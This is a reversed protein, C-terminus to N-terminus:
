YVPLEADGGMIAQPISTNQRKASYDSRKKFEMTAQLVQQAKDYHRTELYLKALEGYYLEAAPTTYTFTEGPQLVSLLEEATKGQKQYLAYLGMRAGLHMPDLRLATKYSEEPSKTDKPIVAADVLTQVFGLYYYASAARPNIALVAQMYGAIQEYLKTQQEVNLTSKRDQLIAIPVNVAFLYVRYNLGQSIRGAMNVHEAFENMRQAFIDDRAKNVMHEGATISLFLWSMMIFPLALLARSAKPSFSDPMAVLRSNENLVKGTKLFWISLLLGTMMLISLNYHNFSVHSQVVMATLAAFIAVIVLRDNGEAKKLAALSRWAAAIVFAYFLLPGMFGLEVWFQLPDNHALFVGDIETVRRHEPYYLFFTGIGTGLVPHDKIIDIASSWIDFRHMNVSEEVAVTGMLRNGLDYRKQIGTQMLGFFALGCGVVILFSKGHAKVRPWLLICFLVLGPLFAFVPGRSVTAMIGCVLLCALVVACRHERRSPRGAAIWGLACFLALSFLAGLSSPDALPHRAQGHFYNNLFFFQFIAWFSLLAFLAALAYAIKKFYSDNGAMLGAFFGLPMVSFFCVGTLSIPKIESWFASLVVLIWFAGALMLVPSRSVTWGTGIDRSLMVYTWGFMLMIAGAFLQLQWDNVPYLACVFAGLWLLVPFAFSKTNM